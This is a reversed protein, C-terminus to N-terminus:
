LKLYSIAARRGMKKIRSLVRETSSCGVYRNVGQAKFWSLGAHYLNASLGKGTHAPLIGINALLGLKKPTKEVSVTVNGALVGNFYLGFAQVPTKKDFFKKFIMRIRAASVEYMSCTSDSKLTQVSLRMYDGMERALDMPRIEYGPPLAKKRGSVARLSDRVNGSLLHYALKFGQKECLKIKGSESPVIGIQVKLKGAKHFKRARGALEKIFGNEILEPSMIFPKVAIIRGEFSDPAIRSVWLWLPRGAEVACSVFRGPDGDNLAKRMADASKRIAAASMKAGQFVSSAERNLEEVARLLLGEPGMGNKIEAPKM